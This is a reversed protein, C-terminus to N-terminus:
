RALYVPTICGRPLPWPDILPKKYKLGAWKPDVKPGPKSGRRPGAWALSVYGIIMMVAVMAVIGKKMGAELNRIIGFSGVERM